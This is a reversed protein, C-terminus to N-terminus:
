LICTFTHSFQLNQLSPKPNKSLPFINQTPPSSDLSLIWKDLIPFPMKPGGLLPQKLSPEMPIIFLEGAVSCLVLLLLEVRSFPWLAVPCCCTICFPFSYIAISFVDLTHMSIHSMYPVFLILQVECGTFSIHDWQYWLSRTLYSKQSCFWLQFSCDEESPCWQSFLCHCRRM